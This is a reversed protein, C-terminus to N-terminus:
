DELPEQVSVNINKIRPSLSSFEEFTMTLEENQNIPLTIDLPTITHHFKEMKRELLSLHRKEHYILFFISLRLLALLAGV